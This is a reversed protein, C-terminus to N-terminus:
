RKEKIMTWLKGWLHPWSVSAWSLGHSARWLEYPHFKKLIAGTDISACMGVQTWQMAFVSWRLHGHEKTLLVVDQPDYHGHRWTAGRYRGEYFAPSRTIFMSKFTPVNM